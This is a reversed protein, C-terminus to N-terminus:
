KKGYIVIIHAPKRIIGNFIGDIFKWLSFPLYKLIVHTRLHILAKNGFLKWDTFQLDNKSYLNLLIKEDFSHLHGHMPTKQNCHICLCYRIIEKYPTTIILAGGPKVVRFLETIFGAPNIIHEIIESAVITEISNNKFPLKLSDSLVQKHKDSNVIQKAKILNQIAIDLSIVDVDNNTFHKAIWASGSGVDLINKTNKPVKSIIYEHVRREDHKTGPLRKEFYDFEIADRKYHTIYDFQEAM